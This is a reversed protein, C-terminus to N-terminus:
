NYGLEILNKKFVINLKKQFNKDLKKKWDNEPGLFFFPIKKVTNKTNVSESFNNDKELKKLKSFNTSLLANQAKKKDLLKKSWPSHFLHIWNSLSSELFRYLWNSEFNLSICNM